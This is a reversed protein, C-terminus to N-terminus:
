QRVRRVLLWLLLAKWFLVCLLLKLLLLPYDDDALGMYALVPQVERETCRGFGYLRLFFAEVSHRATAGQSLAQLLGESGQLPIFLNCLLLNLFNLVTLSIITLPLRQRCLLYLVYVSAQNALTSLVLNLLLHPYFFFFNQHYHGGGEGGRFPDVIYAYLALLPILPLVLEVTSKVLLFAGTSYWGNRHETTFLPFERYLPGASLLPGLHSFFFPGVLAIYRIATLMPTIHRRFTDESNFDAEISICVPAQLHELPFFSRITTGYIIAFLLILLLELWQESRIFTLQRQFLIWTSALSFRCRNSPLKATSYYASALKNKCLTSRESLKQVTPDSTKAYSVKIATEIPYRGVPIGAWQFRDRIGHPSGSYICVGGISLIYLTHFANLLRCNPQHISIIICINHAEAFSKLITVM